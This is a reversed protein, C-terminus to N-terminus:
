SKQTLPPIILLSPSVQRTVSDGFSLAQQDKGSGAQQLYRTIGTKVVTQVEQAVASRASAVALSRSLELSSERASGTGYFMTKSTPPNLYWNPIQSTNVNSSSACSVVVVAGIASIIALVSLRTAKMKMAGKM